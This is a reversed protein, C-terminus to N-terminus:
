TTTTPAATALADERYCGPRTGTWHRFARYFASVEQYGLEGAIAEISLRTSCLLDIARDRRLGDKLERYTLGESELRRRLTSPAVHMEGALAELTPWNEGNTKRLRRRVRAVWGDNNKYKMFVSQPADRLFRKLGAEDQVVPFELCRADFCAETTGADFQLDPCFMVHYEISYGPEPYDFTARTFSIRRGTLWCIVGHLIVLFLETAFVRRPPDAIRNAVRLRAEADEVILEGEIDDFVTAFGRLCQRLGRELRGAHILGRCLLAFTGIKMRRSDSGLFEDDLERAVALWLASFREPPVRAHSAELLAASLGCAHLVRGVAAPDNRLPAVAYRLFVNSITSPDM